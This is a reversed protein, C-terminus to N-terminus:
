SLIMATYPSSRWPTVFRFTCFAGEQRYGQGEGRLHTAGSTIKTERMCKKVTCFNTLGTVRYKCGFQMVFVLYM